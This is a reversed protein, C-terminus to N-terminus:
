KVSRPVKSSHCKRTKVNTTRSTLDALGDASPSICAKDESSVHWSYLKPRSQLRAEKGARKDPTNQLRSVGQSTRPCTIGSSRGERIWPGVAASFERHISVGNSRCNRWELSTVMASMAPGPTIVM